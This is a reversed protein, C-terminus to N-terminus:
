ESRADFLSSGSLILAGAKRAASEMGEENRLRKLWEGQTKSFADPPDDSEVFRRYFGEMFDSTIADEVPWLTLLLYQAGAMAFGRRLGIVGEDASSEGRGSNCASLIVLRTGSLDLDSVEAAMLIGDSAPDPVEGSRWRELTVDAGALAVGGRYMPQDVMPAPLNSQSGQGFSEPTPSRIAIPELFFGHTALHLVEPSRLNRIRDETAEEGILLDVQDRNGSLIAAVRRAEDAAGALPPFVVSDLRDGHGRVVSKASSEPAHSGPDRSGGGSAPAFSFDPGGVIVPRGIRQGSSSLGVLDRGTAVYRIAVREGLFSAPSEPLVAFSVFNLIGDPSVILSEVGELEEAFPAVLFRYLSQGAELFTEEDTMGQSAKQFLSVLGDIEKKSGCIRFEPKRGPRLLVGGWTLEWKSGGLYRGYGLYEILAEGPELGEIVEETRVSLAERMGSIQGARRALDSEIEGIEAELIGIEEADNELRARGLRNRRDRLRTRIGDFEGEGGFERILRREELLTDLVLGKAQLVADAIDPASELSAILTYFSEGSMFQLREFESSRPLIEAILRRLAESRRRALSLARERNGLDIEVLALNFLTRIVDFSDFGFQNEQAELVEEFLLKAQEARGAKGHCIALFAKTLAVDASGPGLRAIQVELAEEYLAEAEDTQGADRLLNALSILTKATEARDTGLETSQGELLERFIMEAEDLRDTVGYLNALNRRIRHTLAHEPGLSKRAISLAERYRSEARDMRGLVKEIAALRDLTSAFTLHGPKLHQEQIKLARVMTSEAEGFDGVRYYVDALSRLSHATELHSEGRTKEIIELHRLRLPKAERYRGTQYLLGALFNVVDGTDPHHLGLAKERIVMSRRYMSLADETRGQAKLVTAINNLSSSVSPHDPGDTLEM